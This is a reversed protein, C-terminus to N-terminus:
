HTEAPHQVRPIQSFPKYSTENEEVDEVVRGKWCHGFYIISGGKHQFHLPLAPESVFLFSYSHRKSITSEQSVKPQSSILLEVTVSSCFIFFKRKGHPPSPSSLSTLNKEM